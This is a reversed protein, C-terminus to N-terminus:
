HISGGDSTCREKRDLRIRATPLGFTLSRSPGRRVVVSWSCRLASVAADANSGVGLETEIDKVVYAELNDNGSIYVM